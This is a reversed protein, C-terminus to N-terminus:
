GARVSPKLGSEPSAQDPDFRGPRTTALRIRHFLNELQEM